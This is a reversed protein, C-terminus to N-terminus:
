LLIYEPDHSLGVPRNLLIMGADKPCIPYYRVQDETSDMLKGLRAQLKKLVDNRRFSSDLIILTNQIGTEVPMVFFGPKRESV